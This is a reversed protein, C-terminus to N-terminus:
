IFHNTRFSCHTVVTNLLCEKTRTCVGDFTSGRFHHFVNKAFANKSQRAIYTDVTLNSPVFNRAVLDLRRASPSNRRICGIAFCSPWRGRWSGQRTKDHRSLSHHHRNNRHRGHADQYWINGYLFKIARICGYHRPGVRRHFCDSDDSAM